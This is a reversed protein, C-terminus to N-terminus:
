PTCSPPTLSSRLLSENTDFALSRFRGNSRTSVPATASWGRGKAVVIALWTLRVARSKLDAGCPARTRRCADCTRAVCTPASEVGKVKRSRCVLDGGQSFFHLSAEGVGRDGPRSAAVFPLRTRTSAAGSRLDSSSGSLDTFAFFRPLLFGTNGASYISICIPCLRTWTALGM